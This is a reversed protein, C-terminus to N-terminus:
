FIKFKVYDFTLIIKEEETFYINKIQVVFPTKPTGFHRINSSFFWLNILHWYIKRFFFYGLSILYM